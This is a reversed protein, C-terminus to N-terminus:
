LHSSGLWECSKNQGSGGHQRDISAMGRHNLLFSRLRRMVVIVVVIMAVIVVLRRRRVMMVITV